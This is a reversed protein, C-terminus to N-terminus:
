TYQSTGGAGSLVYQGSCLSTFDPLPAPRSSLGVRSGTAHGFPRLRRPWAEHTRSRCSTLRAPFSSGTPMRLLARCDAAQQAVSVPGSARNSGAYGRRHYLILRYRDAFSPEVLLPHFPDAIFAGHIFIVPEGPGSLQYALEAGDLSAREM